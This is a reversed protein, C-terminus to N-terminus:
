SNNFRKKSSPKCTPNELVAYSHDYLELNDLLHCATLVSCINGGYHAQWTSAVPQDKDAKCSQLRVVMTTVLTSLVSLTDPVIADNCAFDTRYHSALAPM